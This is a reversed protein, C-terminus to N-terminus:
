NGLNLRPILYNETIERKTSAICEAGMRIHDLPFNNRHINLIESRMEAKNYPDLNKRFLSLYKSLRIKRDKGGEEYIKLLIKLFYCM